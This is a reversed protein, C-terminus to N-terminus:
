GKEFAVARLGNKLERALLVVGLVGVGMVLAASFGKPGSNEPVVWDGSNGPLM